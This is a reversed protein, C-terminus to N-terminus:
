HHSISSIDLGSDWSFSMVRRRPCRMCSSCVPVILQKVVLKKLIILAKKNTQYKMIKSIFMDDFLVGTFINLSLIGVVCALRLSSVTDNCSISKNFENVCCKITANKLLVSVEANLYEQGIFFIVSTSSHGKGDPM